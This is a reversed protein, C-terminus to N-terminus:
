PRAEAGRRRSFRRLPWYRGVVRWAVAHAPIPGLERGDASSAPRLDGLVFVEGRGPLHVGDPLTPGTAAPHDHPVGGVLVAGDRVEVIEDALGVVRKVLDLGPRRPHAFIVVDWRRIRDPHVRAAVVYDGPQYTPAMSREAIEFRTLRRAAAVALAAVVAAAAVTVVILRPRPM